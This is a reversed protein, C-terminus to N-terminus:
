IKLYMSFAQDSSLMVIMHLQFIDEAAEGKLLIRFYGHFLLNDIPLVFYEQPAIARMKMLSKLENYFGCEFVMNYVKWIRTQIYFNIVNAKSLAIAVM